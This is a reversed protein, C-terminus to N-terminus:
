TKIWIWIKYKTHQLHEYSKVLTVYTVKGTSFNYKVNSHNM